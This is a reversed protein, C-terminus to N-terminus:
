TTSFPKLSRALGNESLANRDATSASISGTAGASGGKSLVLQALRGHLGSGPKNGTPHLAHSEAPKHLLMRAPDSEAAPDPILIVAPYLDVGDASGFLKIFQSSEEIASGAHCIDPSNFRAFGSHLL